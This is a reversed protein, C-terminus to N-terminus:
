RGGAAAVREAPLYLRAVTGAGPEGALDLSGGHLEILNRTISLGLGTGGKHDRSLQSVAQEFPQIVRERDEAAIGPGTDAVEITVGGDATMRGQLRVAGDRGAFKVGNALLNLLMQRLARADAWLHPLDAPLEDALEVGAREAQPGVMRLSPAAVERPAVWDEDLNYAGRELKAMDLVDDVLALLHQGSEHITEAYGAYTAVDDGFLRRRIVDAFGIVANLPTRLEHNMTSLFRTKAADAAAARDRAERLERELRKHATIDRFFWVRGLYGGDRDRMPGTYREVVRGDTLAIEDYGIEAPDAALKRMRALFAAPNAVQSQAYRFLEDGDNEDILEPPMNWIELFRRNHFIPRRRDDVVLIGDPSLESLTEHFATRYRLDAQASREASIDHVTVLLCAQGALWFPAYAVRAPFTRGDLRSLETELETFGGHEALRAMAAERDEPVAHFAGATYGALPECDPRCPARLLANLRRSAVYVCGDSPRALAMPIPAERILSRVRDDLADPPEADEAVPGALAAAAERSLFGDADAARRARALQEATPTPDGASLGCFWRYSLRDALEGAFVADGLRQAHQLLIAHALVGADAEDAAHPRIRAMLGAWDLRARAEALAEVDPGATRLPVVTM